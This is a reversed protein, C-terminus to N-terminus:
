PKRGRIAAAIWTLVAQVTRREQATMEGAHLLIEDLTPSALKACAEREEARADALVALICAQIHDTHHWLTSTAIMRAREADTPASM